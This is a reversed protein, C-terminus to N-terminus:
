VGFRRERNQYKYISEYFDTQTFSPWNKNFFVFESYANHYLMFNSIRIESTRVMLDVDALDGLLLSERFGQEDEGTESVDTDNTSRNFPNSDNSAKVLENRGGYPMLFIIRKDEFESTSDEMDNISGKVESPLKQLYETDGRVEHRIENEMVLDNHAVGSFFDEFVAYLQSLEDKPRREINETSLLFVTITSVDNDVMAWKRFSRIANAGNAYGQGVSMGRSRAWRRNGDPILAIHDPLQQKSINNKLIQGTIPSENSLKLLQNYGARRVGFPELKDRNRLRQIAYERSKRREILKDLATDTLLSAEVM